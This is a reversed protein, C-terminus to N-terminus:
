FYYFIITYIVVSILLTIVFGFIIDEFYVNRHNKRINKKYRWLFLRIAPPLLCLPLFYYKGYLLSLTSILYVTGRDFFGSFKEFGELPTGSYRFFWTMKIFFIIITMFFTSLIFGIIILLLRHNFFFTNIDGLIFQPTLSKLGISIIIIIGIHLVQDLFFTWISTKKMRDIFYHSLSIAIIGIWTQYYTLFPTLFFINSVTHVIIHFLGGYKYKYRAKYIFNTQLPFDAILHSLLLLLFINM